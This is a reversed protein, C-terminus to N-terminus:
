TPDQGGSRAAQALKEFRLWDTRLRLSRLMFRASQILMLQMWYVFALAFFCLAIAIANPQSPAIKLFGAIPILSAAAHGLHKLSSIRLSRRLTADNLAQRAAPDSEIVRERAAAQERDEQGENKTSM